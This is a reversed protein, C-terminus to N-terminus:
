DQLRLQFHLLVPCVRAVAASDLSSGRICLQRQSAIASCPKEIASLSTPWLPSAKGLHEEDAGVQGPAARVVMWLTM